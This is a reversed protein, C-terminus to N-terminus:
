FSNIKDLKNYLNLSIKKLLLKEGKLFYWEFGNAFYERLSTAAYPSMFLGSTLESLVPYGVDQYLFMDVDENYEPKLFDEPAGEIYQYGHASLIDRLRRRKGIFETELAGDFYIEAPMQEEVAHAVEHGISEVFDETSPQESLVYIAGDEYVAEVNREIFIDFIGIYVIDVNSFCWQPIRDELTRLAADIDVTETSPFDKIMVPIKNFLLRERSRNNQRQLSESMYEQIKNRSM